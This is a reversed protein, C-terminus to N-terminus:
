ILALDKFMTHYYAAKKELALPYARSTSPMRYFQLTREGITLTKCEGIKPKETKYHAVIENTAKEGTTAIALCSPMERLLKEINTSRIIELFNDSANDRLRCVAEATDYFAIGAEEAFQEIETKRFCRRTNDVFIHKDAFFIMGMIRWMDNQLNPYFFDMSWRKQQPPFSGLMLLKANHPLFPKLPHEEISPM